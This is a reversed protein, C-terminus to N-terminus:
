PDNVPNVYRGPEAAAALSALRPRSFWLELYHRLLFLIPLVLSDRDGATGDPDDLLRQLLIESAQRYGTAHFDGVSSWYDVVANFRTDGDPVIIRLQDSAAMPNRYNEM